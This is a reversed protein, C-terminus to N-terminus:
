EVNLLEEKIIEDVLRPVITKYEYNNEKVEGLTKDSDIKQVSCMKVFMDTVMNKVEDTADYVKYPFGCKLLYLKLKIDEYKEPFLEKLRSDPNDWNEIIKEYREIIIERKM